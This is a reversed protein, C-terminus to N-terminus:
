MRGVRREWGGAGRAVRPGREPSADIQRYRLGAGVALWESVSGGHGMRAQCTATATHIGEQREACEGVGDWEKSTVTRWIKVGGM